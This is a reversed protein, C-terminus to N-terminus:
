RDRGVMVQAVALERCTHALGAGVLVEVRLAVLEHRAHHVAVDVAALRDDRHMRHVRGYETTAHAPVLEANRRIARQLQPLLACISGVAVIAPHPARGNVTLPVDADAIREASRGIKRALITRIASPFPTTAPTSRLRDLASPLPHITM